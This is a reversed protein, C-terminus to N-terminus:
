DVDDLHRTLRTMVMRLGEAGETAGLKDEAGHLLAGIEKSLARLVDPECGADLKAEVLQAAAESVSALAQSDQTWKLSSKLAALHGEFLPLRDRPTGCAKEVYLFTQWHTPQEPEMKTHIDLLTRLQPLIRRASTSDAARVDKVVADALVASIAADPAGGTELCRRARFAAESYLKLDAALAAASRWLASSEGRLRCAERFACLAERPQKQKAFLGGLSAWAQYHEQDIAVVRRLDTIAEVEREMKLACVACCYWAEALHAKVALAARLEERAVEWAERRMAAAGLALKARACSGKSLDWATRYHGEDGDLDGLYCWLTPTPQVDLRERVVEEAKSREGLQILCEVYEDWLQMTGFMTSAQTFMGLAALSRALETGLQWNSELGSAWFGRLRISALRDAEYAVRTPVFTGGGRVAGRSSAAAAAADLGILGDTPWRANSADAYLEELQMLAVHRRRSRSADARSRLLLAKAGAAWTRPSSLVSRLYPEAQEVTTSHAASGSRVVAAQALVAMQEVPWLAPGCAGQGGAEDDELQVEDLLTDDEADVRKPLEAAAAAAMVDGPTLRAPRPAAHPAFAVQMTLQATATQQHRTRRGLAGSTSLSIGLTSCALQLQAVAQAHKRHTLLQQVSELRALARLRVVMGGDGEGGADSEGAVQGAETAVRLLNDPKLWLGDGGAESKFAYRGREADWRGAVGILGNLEPRAALDIVMVRAGLM